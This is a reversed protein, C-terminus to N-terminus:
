VADLVKKMEERLVEAALDQAEFDGFEKRQKTCDSLKGATGFVGEGMVITGSKFNETFSPGSM